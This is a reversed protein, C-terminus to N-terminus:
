KFVFRYVIVALSDAMAPHSSQLVISAFTDCVQLIFLFISSWVHLTAKQLITWAMLDGEQSGFGQQKHECSSRMRLFKLLLAFNWVLFTTLLISFFYTELIKTCSVKLPQLSIKAHIRFLIRCWHCVYIHWQPMSVHHVQASLGVCWTPAERM